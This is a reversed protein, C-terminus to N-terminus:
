AAREGIAASLRIRVTTGVGPESDLDIEGGMLSVVQRAIALGLGFGSVGDSNARYFREFVHPRHAPSIGSGTDEVQIEVRAEDLRHARLTVTGTTTHSLSNAALSMVAQELLDTHGWAALGPACEIEIPVTARPTLSIRVQEFMPGLRVVETRPSEQDAEARALVMLAQMVRTLREAQQEIFGLFEDRDAPIEKAGTQLMEVSTVIAALPTRLEHAANTAFERQARETRERASEDTVVLIAADDGRPPIGSLALTTNPAPSFRRQVPTRSRFLDRTFEALSFDPWPEPLPAGAVADDGLLRHVADNAYEIRLEGNVLLVGDHLRDLLGELQRREEELTQVLGSLRIRMAEISRGLSGVEDPFRSSVSQSFDGSEIAKATQAFRELRRAILTAILLGIVAGIVIAWLVSATFENRVIGLQTRLEPRLSYSVLEGGLGGRLRLGIAFHDGDSSGSVFRGGAVAAALAARGRTVQAWPIGNSTPDSILRGSNDFVYLSLGRERAIARTERRLEGRTRSKKLVEAASVANGAALDQAYRKFAHESRSSLVQVVALASAAAVLAFAAALWWRMGLVRM